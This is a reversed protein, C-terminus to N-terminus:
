VQSLDDAPTKSVNAILRCVSRDRVSWPLARARAQSRGHRRRRPQILIAIMMLNSPQPGLKAQPTQVGCTRWM